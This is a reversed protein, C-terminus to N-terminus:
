ILNLERMVSELKQSPEQSMPTLPLRLINRCLGLKSCAFKVPIPNVELFLSHFLAQYKSELARAEEWKGELALNMMQVMQSPIVNSAVSIVGSGGIETIDLALGDDGSYLITDSGKILDYTTAIQDLKGCAEKLGKINSLEALRQATEPLINVGTRSPVNYAIIPLSTCNNIAKYHEVLGNQTCKNYYPTVVLVGDAGLSEAYKTNEVATATCNCGTGLITPVRHNIHQIAWQMVSKKESDTMTVPEGTTGCVVLANIGGDIQSEILKEFSEYDVGNDTFPTILATATGKFM